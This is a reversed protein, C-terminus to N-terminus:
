SSTVPGGSAFVIIASKRRVFLHHTLTPFACMVRQRYDKGNGTIIYCASLNFAGGAGVAGVSVAALCRVHRTSGPRIELAGVKVSAFSQKVLEDTTMLSIAGESLVITM